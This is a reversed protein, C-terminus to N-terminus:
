EDSIEAAALTTRLTFDLISQDAKDVQRQILLSHFETGFFAQEIRLQDILQPLLDASYTHGSLELDAGGNNIAIKEFWIGPMTQRALGVFFASMNPSDEYSKARLLKLMQISHNREEKLAQLQSQLIPAKNSQKAKALVSSLQATTQSNQSELQKLEVLLLQQQYYAYGYAVAMLAIAILTLKILSAASWNVEQRKFAPTFLNIQQIM